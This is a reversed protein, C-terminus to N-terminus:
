LDPGGVLNSPAPECTHPPVHMHMPLWLGAEPPKILVPDRVPMLRMLLSPQGCIELSEQTEREREAEEPNSNRIHKM